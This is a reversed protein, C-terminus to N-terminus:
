TLCVHDRCTRVHRQHVRRRRSVLVYPTIPAATNCRDLVSRHLQAESIAGSLQRLEAGMSEAGNKLARDGAINRSADKLDAASSM